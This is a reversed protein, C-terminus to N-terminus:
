GANRLRYHFTITGWQEGTRGGSLPEFRWGRLATRANDDFEGFGATKQVVVNEKVTGDPRVVFYLTVSGEVAERKAWDPYEPVVTSLVKRDAIPGALSAGAVTRRAVREGMDAAAPGGGGAGGVKAGPLTAPAIGGGGTGGRTLPLASGGAGGRTLSVAPGGGSGGIPATGSGFLSAPMVTTGTGAPALVATQQMASLRAELLDATADRQMPELTIDGKAELRQFRTDKVSRSAAGSRAEQAAIAPAAPEPTGELEGPELFTIETIPPTKMDTNPQLVIWLFLLAHAVVSMTMTWRTRRRVLEFDLRLTAATM